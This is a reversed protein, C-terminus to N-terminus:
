QTVALKKKINTLILKIYILTGINSTYINVITINEKRISRKLM